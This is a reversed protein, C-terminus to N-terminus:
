GNAQPLATRRIARIEEGLRVLAPYADRRTGPVGEPLGSDGGTHEGYSTM